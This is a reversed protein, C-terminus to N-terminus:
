KREGAPQSSPKFGQAAYDCLVKYFAPYLKSALDALAPEVTPDDGKNMSMLYVQGWLPNSGMRARWGAVTAEELTLAQGGPRVYWNLTYLRGAGQKLTQRCARVAFPVGDLTTEWTTKSEPSWGRSMHPITFDRMSGIRSSTVKLTLAVKRGAANQYTRYHLVSEPHQNSSQAKAESSASQRWQWEGLQAGIQELPFNGVDVERSARASALVVILLLLLSGVYVAITKTV